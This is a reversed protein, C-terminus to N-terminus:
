GSTNAIRIVGTARITVSDTGLLDLGTNTWPQTAPVSVTKSFDHKKIIASAAPDAAVMVTAVWLTVALILAM